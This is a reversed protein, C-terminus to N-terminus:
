GGGAVLRVVVKSDAPDTAVELVPHPLVDVLTVVWAGVAYRDTGMTPHTHLSVGTADAPGEGVRLRVGADGEWVCTAGSPCRSDGLLKVYTVSVGEVWVVTEGVRLTVDEGARPPVEQRSEPSDGERGSATPSGSCGGALLSLLLLLSPSHRAASSM